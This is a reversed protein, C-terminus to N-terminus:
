DVPSRTAPSGDGLGAFDATRPRPEHAGYGPQINATVEGQM